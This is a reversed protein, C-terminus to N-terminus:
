PCTSRTRSSSTTCASDPVIVVADSVLPSGARGWAVAAAHAVADIGLDDVVNKRWVVRGTAGDIAHLWGTAGTAYVVGDRITPTSRPGVGGLVTEHRAPVAVSWEPEGDAIRYCAIVEEDGRQELTVAHGDCVAEAAPRAPVALPHHTM